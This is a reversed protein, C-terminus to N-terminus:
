YNEANCRDPARIDLCLESPPPFSQVGLILLIQNCEYLIM